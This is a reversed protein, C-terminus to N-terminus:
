TDPDLVPAPPIPMYAEGAVILCTIGDPRTATITWSGTTPDAFIEIVQNRSNLAVAQRVEGYRTQLMEVVTDHPACNPAPTAFAHHTALLLGGIGFSLTLLQTNM